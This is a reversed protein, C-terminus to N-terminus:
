GNDPTTPPLMPQDEPVAPSKVADRRQARKQRKLDARQQKDQDRQRKAYTNRQKAIPPEM